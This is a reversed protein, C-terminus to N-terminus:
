QVYFTRKSKRQLKQRFCKEDVYTGWVDWETVKGPFVDAGPIDTDTWRLYCTHAEPTAATLPTTRSLHCAVREDGFVGM